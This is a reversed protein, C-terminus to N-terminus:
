KLGFLMQLFAIDHTVSLIDIRRPSTSDHTWSGRRTVQSISKHIVLKTETSYTFSLVYREVFYNKYSVSHLDSGPAGHARMLRRLIKLSKHNIM